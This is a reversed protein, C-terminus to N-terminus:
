NLNAQNPKWGSIEEKIKKLFLNNLVIFYNKYFIYKLYDVFVLM